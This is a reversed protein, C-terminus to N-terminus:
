SSLTRMVISETTASTVRLKVVVSLHKTAFPVCFYMQIVTNDRAGATQASLVLDPWIGLKGDRTRPSSAAAEPSLRLRRVQGRARPTHRGPRELSSGQPAAVDAGDGSQCRPADLSILRCISTTLDFGFLLRQGTTTQIVDHVFLQDNTFFFFFSFFHLGTCRSLVAGPSYGEAFYKAKLSTAVPARPSRIYGESAGRAQKCRERRAQLHTAGNATSQNAPLQEKQRPASIRWVARRRSRTESSFVWLRQKWVGAALFFIFVRNAFVCQSWNRSARPLHSSIVARLANVAAGTPQLSRDQPSFTAAPSCMLCSAKATAAKPSKNTQKRNNQSTLSPLSLNLCFIVLDSVSAVYCFGTTEQESYHASCSLDPYCLAFM